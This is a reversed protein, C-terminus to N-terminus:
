STLSACEGIANGGVINPGGGSDGVQAAPSNGECILNGSIVNDAVETSDLIGEFDDEGTQIGSTKSFIVNGGVTNRLLGIWLGHWGQVVLNGYITSDKIPFNRALDGGGNSVVNGYVTAGGLYLSGPQNAVINGGVTYFTGPGYGLGFVGGKEVKVNGKVAASGVFAELCAGPAITLNGNVTLSQGFDVFRKGTITLNGNVVGSIATEPGYCLGYPDATATAAFVGVAMVSCLGLLLRLKMM